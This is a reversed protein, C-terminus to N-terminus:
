LSLRSPKKVVAQQPGIPALSNPPDELDTLPTRLRYVDGRGGSGHCCNRGMRFSADVAASHVRKDAVQQQRGDDSGGHNPRRRLRQHGRFRM